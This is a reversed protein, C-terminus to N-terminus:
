LAEKLADFILEAVRRTTPDTDYGDIEYQQQLWQQFSKLKKIAPKAQQYADRVLDLDDAWTFHEPVWDIPADTVTDLLTNGTVGAAIEAITPLWCLPEPQSSFDANRVADLIHEKSFADEILDYIELEILADVSLHVRDSVFGQIIILTPYVEHTIENFGYTKVPLGVLYAALEDEYGEGDGAQMWSNYLSDLLNWDIEFWDDDQIWSLLERFLESWHAGRTELNSRRGPYLRQILALVRLRYLAQRLEYAVTQFKLPRLRRLIAAPTLIRANHPQIANTTTKLM